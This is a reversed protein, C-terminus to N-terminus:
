EALARGKLLRPSIYPSSDRSSVKRAPVGAVTIGPDPFSSVVVSGAGIVMNDAIRIDGIIKAGSGIFVNDGIVPAKESGGTAGITVGEQIRCNKGVRAGSNVVLYGYHAISLGEGFVHLPVSFGLRVSSSHYLFRSILRYPLQWVHRCCADAYEARRLRIEFRWIEDRFPRPRRRTEGLAIKDRALYYLYAKYSHIM